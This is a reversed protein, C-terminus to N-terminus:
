KFVGTKHCIVAIYLNTDTKGSSNVGANRRKHELLLAVIDEGKEHLVPVVCRCSEVAVALPLLVAEDCFKYGTLYTDREIKYVEACFIPFPYHVIHEVFVFFATRWVRVDETVSFYLEVSEEFTGLLETGIINRRTMVASLFCEFARVSLDMANQGSCVGVLVLAIEEALQGLLLERLRKKRDSIYLFRFHAPKGM